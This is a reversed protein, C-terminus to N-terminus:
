QRIFTQVMKEENLIVELQYIGKLLANVEVTNGSIFAPDELVMRGEMDRIRLMLPKDHWKSPAHVQILGTSPNPFVVLSEELHSSVAGFPLPQAATITFDVNSIDYFVNEVSQVMIRAQTTSVNPITVAQTGDNPTSALLMSFTAGGDTSILIAVNACNVGNATTGAVNWTITQSSNGLWNVAINPQTVVFPGANKTVTIVVNKETTCGGNAHNDRITVRFNLTRNQSAPASLVEWPDNTNSLVDSFKPFYRTPSSVPIYSRFMPGSKNTPLPPMPQIPSLTTKGDMQEWCYSLADGNSDTVGTVTLVFPTSKPITKNVLANCTPASNGNPVLVACAGGTGNIFTSIMGISHAHFYKDIVYGQINPPCNATGYSMITSGNGPEVGAVGSCNNYHTHSASFQHGFEHAVFGNWFFINPNHWGSTGKAKVTSCAKGAGIGNNGTRFLHGIDYNALGIVKDCNTQNELIADNPDYNTYPDTISDTYIINDNNDVMVLRLGADIEFIGNVTTMCANIAALVPTKNSGTAGYFNAYEGTCALALRYTRLNGCSGARDSVAAQAEVETEVDDMLCNMTQDAPIPCDKQFYCIYDEANGRSYQDIFFSNTRDVPLALAHLGMPSVSFRLYDGQRNRGAYSRIDPYKASLEPAMVPAEWVEFTSFGGDPLPFDLLVASEGSVFESEQPAAALISKIQLVDLQLTRYANPIIDRIGRDAALSAEALDAWPNAQGFITGSLLITFVFPLLYCM